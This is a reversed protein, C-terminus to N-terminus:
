TKLCQRNTIKKIEELIEKNNKFPLSYKKGLLIIYGNFFATEIQRGSHIDQHTSSYHNLNKWHSFMRKKVKEASELPYEKKLIVYCEDFLANIKQRTKKNRFLDCFPKNEIASLANLCCNVITKEARLSDFNRAPKCPIGARLLLSSIKKGEDSYETKWGLPTPSVHIERDKLNFGSFVTVPIIKKRLIRGHRSIDVLGNQVASIIRPKIKSNKITQIMRDFDYLKTTIFVFDYKRNKPIKFNKEPINFERNEIIVKDEIEMLKRRGFLTVENGKACLKVGLFIGISGAGCILINAM